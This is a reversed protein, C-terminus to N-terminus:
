KRYSDRLLSFLFKESFRFRQRAHSLYVKNQARTIAVYFLRREEEIEDQDKSSLPFLGEELGSVFVVPFELGKAAHITM